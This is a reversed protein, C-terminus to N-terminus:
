KNKYKEILLVLDFEFKKDRRLKLQKKFLSEKKKDIASDFIM